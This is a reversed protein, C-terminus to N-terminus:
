TFAIIVSLANFVGKPFTEIRACFAKIQSFWCNLSLRDGSTHSFKYRRIIESFNGERRTSFYCHFVQHHLKLTLCSSEQLIHKRFPFDYRFLAVISSFPIEKETWKAFFRNESEIFIWKLSVNGTTTTNPITVLLM